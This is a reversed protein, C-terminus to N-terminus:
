EKSKWEYNCVSVPCVNICKVCHLCENSLNKRKGNELTLISESPCVEQCKGCEICGEENIKLSYLAKRSTFSLITGFPCLHRHWFVEQFILTLLVSFGTLYLLVNFKIGMR